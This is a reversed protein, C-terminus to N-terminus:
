YQIWIKGGIIKKTMYNMIEIIISIIFIMIINGTLKINYRLIIQTILLILINIFPYFIGLTLATLPITLRVLTPKITNNLIYIIMSALLSYFINEIYLNKPFLITISNLILANMIVILIHKM